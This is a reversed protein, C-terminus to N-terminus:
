GWAVIAAIIAAVAALITMSLAGFLWWKMARMDARLLALESRLESRLEAIDSRVEAFETRTETRLENIESKLAFFEDKVSEERALGERAVEATAESVEDLVDTQPEIFGSSRLRRRISVPLLAM